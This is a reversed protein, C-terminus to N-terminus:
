PIVVCSQPSDLMSAAGSITRAPTIDGNGTLPYVLVADNNRHHTYIENDHISLDYSFDLGTAAGAITRTPVLTTGSASRPFVQISGTHGVFMETGAVEIGSPRSIVTGEGEATRLPAINGTGTAPYVTVTSTANNAVFIEGGFVAIGLPGSLGTNSGSIIRLPAVDGTADAAFVRISPTAGGNTVFIENGTIAIGTLGTIGTQAGTITRTPATDGSATSPYVTVSTSNAAYLEGNATELKPTVLLTAAGALTHHPAMNGSDTPAFFTVSNNIYNAVALYPGAPADPSGDPRGDIAADDGSPPADIPTNDAVEGCGSWVVLLLSVVSVAGTRTV